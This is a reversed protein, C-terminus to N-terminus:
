AREGILLFINPLFLHSVFNSIINLLILLLCICPGPASGGSIVPLPGFINLDFNIFNLVTYLHNTCKNILSFYQLIFM